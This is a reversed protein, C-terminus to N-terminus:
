SVSAVLLDIQPSHESSRPLVASINYEVQGGTEGVRLKDSSLVDTGHPLSLKGQTTASLRGAIVEEDGGIPTLRCVTDAVVSEVPPLPDGFRDRGGSTTRIVRCRDPMMTKSYHRAIDIYGKM